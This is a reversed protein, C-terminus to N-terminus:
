DDAGGIYVDRLAQSGAVQAPTGEIAVRGLNLVYLRDCIPLVKDVIQEALLVATGEERLAALAAFLGDVLAPALGQSPEDILMLQPHAMMAQAVVLMQQEGGSLTGAQANYKEELIPFLTFVRRRDADIQKSMSRRTYAGLTLNDAVSMETFIQKGEQAFSVGFSVIRHPALGTISIGDLRVSGSCPALGTIARMTTTKGAGNRGLLAVLEGEGVRLTVEDLVRMGAYSVSLGSVELM